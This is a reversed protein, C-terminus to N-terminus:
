AEQMLISVPQWDDRQECTERIGTINQDLAADEPEVPIIDMGDASKFGTFRALGHSHHQFLEPDIDGTGIDCVPRSQEFIDGVAPRLMQIATQMGERFAQHLRVPMKGADIFGSYQGM